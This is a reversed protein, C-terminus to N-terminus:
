DRVRHVFRCAENETISRKSHINYYLYDAGPGVRGVGGSDYESHNRWHVPLTDFRTNGAVDLIRMSETVIYMPGLVPKLNLDCALHFTDPSVAWLRFSAYVDFLLFAVTRAIIETYAVM